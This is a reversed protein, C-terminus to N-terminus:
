TNALHGRKWGGRDRRSEGTGTFAPQLIEGTGPEAQFSRGTGGVDGAVYVGHRRNPGSLGLRVGLFAPGLRLHNDPRSFVYRHCPPRPLLTSSDRIAAGPKGEVAAAVVVM